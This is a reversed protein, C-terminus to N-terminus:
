KLKACATPTHMSGLLLRYLINDNSQSQYPRNQVGSVGCSIGSMRYSVTDCPLKDRSRFTSSQNATTISAPINALSLTTIVLTFMLQLM